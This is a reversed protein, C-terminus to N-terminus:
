RTIRRTSPIFVAEPPIASATPGRAPLGGYRTRIKLGVARNALTQGHKEVWGMGTGTGSAGGNGNMPPQTNKPCPCPCPCPCPLTDPSAKVSPAFKRIRGGGSKVCSLTNPGVAVAAAETELCRSGPRRSNLPSAQQAPRTNPSCEAPPKTWAACWGPLGANTSLTHPCHCHPDHPSFRIFRDPAAKREALTPQRDILVTALPRRQLGSRVPNPMFVRAARPPSRECRLPISDRARSAHGPSVPSERWAARRARGPWWFAVIFARCPRAPPPLRL